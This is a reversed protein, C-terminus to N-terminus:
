TSSNAVNRVVYSLACSTRHRVRIHLSRIQSHSTPSVGRGGIVNFKASALVLSLKPVTRCFTSLYVCHYISRGIPLASISASDKLIANFLGRRTRRFQSRVTSFICIGTSTTTFIIGRFARGSVVVGVAVVAWKALLQRGPVPM